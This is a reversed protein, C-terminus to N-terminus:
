HVIKLLDGTRYHTGISLGALIAAANDAHETVASDKLGAAEILGGFQSPLTSECKIARATGTCTPVGNLNHAKVWLFSFDGDVNVATADEKDVDLFAVYAETNVNTTANFHLQANLAGLHNIVANPNDLSVDITNGMMYDIAQVDTGESILKNLVGYLGTVAGSGSNTSRSNLGMIWGVQSDGSHKARARLADIQSVKGSSNSLVEANIGRANAAWDTGASAKLVDIELGTTTDNQVNSSIIEVDGNINKISRETNTNTYAM